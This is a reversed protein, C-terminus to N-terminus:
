ADMHKMISSQVVLVCICSVNATACLLQPLPFVRLCQRRQRTATDRGAPCM